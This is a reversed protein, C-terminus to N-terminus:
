HSSNLRTSKRDRAGPEPKESSLTLAESEFRALRSGPRKRSIEEIFQARTLKQPGIEVWFDPALMREFAATDHSTRAADWEAHVAGLEDRVRALESEASSGRPAGSHALLFVVPLVLLSLKM